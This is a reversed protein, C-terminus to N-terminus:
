GRWRGGSVRDLGALDQRCVANEFGKASLAACVAPGQDHGHELLLWGGPALHAPTQEILTLLDAMGEDPATLASLPEHGLAALHPDGDAIYPPNSVILEFREGQLPTCWSGHRFELDLALDRANQRAVELAAPSFDIALVRADPARHKIALAIAGSGTGLDAVRAGAPQGALLELAWDVLIETDPRPVLTAPSVKLRLGHFEKYGLLYALPEGALRRPLWDAWRAAQPESLREDDHAILWARDRELLAALLWQAEQPPLGAARAQRLADVITPTSM